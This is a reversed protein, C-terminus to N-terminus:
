DGPLSLREKPSHSSFSLAVNRNCMGACLSLRSSSIHQNHFVWKLRIVSNNLDSTQYWESSHLTYQNYPIETLLSCLSISLMCFSSHIYWVVSSSGEEQPTLQDYFFIFWQIFQWIWWHWLPFFLMFQLLDIASSSVRYKLRFYFYMFSISIDM